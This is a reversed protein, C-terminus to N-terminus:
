GLHNQREGSFSASEAIQSVWTRSNASRTQVSPRPLEVSFSADAETRRLLILAVLPFVVCSLLGASVLATGTVPKIVGLSVGIASAVVLFPLSTAQLLGIAITNRRGVSSRYFVAPVGRVVLLGLLFLPIEAFASPSHLLARLDFTLGSTV